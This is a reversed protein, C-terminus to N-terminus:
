ENPISGRMAEFASKKMLLVEHKPMRAICCLGGSKSFSNLITGLPIDLDYSCEAFSKYEGVYEGTLYDLQVVPVGRLEEAVEKKSRRMELGRIRLEVGKPAVRSFYMGRIMVGNPNEKTKLALYEETLCNDEAAIGISDYSCIYRMTPLSFKHIKVGRDRVAIIKQYPINNEM